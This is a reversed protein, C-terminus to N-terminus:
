VSFISKIDKTNIVPMNELDWLANILGVKEYASIDNETIRGVSLKHESILKARQTGALLPTDPTWWTKGDYFLSNATYSDSICGNKVILIDDCDERLAYLRALKKRNSYKFSYDIANDKVLRLSKVQRYQHPIFEIKEIKHSYVVRCRYLGTKYKEPVHILEQLDEVDSFPFNKKMAKNFRAQHFEMNYLKGDKCKITELLQM